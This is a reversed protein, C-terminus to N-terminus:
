RDPAGGGPLADLLARMRRIEARQDADVDTAFQFIQPEQAAGRTGFLQSVMTLAGEHHRIMGELFLRDFDAGKAAALRAMEERTLMGPMLAEHGAGMSMSPMDTMGTDHGDAHPPYELDPHPVVQHRDELWRQMMAIEDRQSVDIREALLHMDRRESRARVLSAMRVAQAHHAIMGQMFRVDAETYSPRNRDTARTPASASTTEGPTAPSVSGPTGGGSTTHCAVIAAMALPAAAILRRRSPETM